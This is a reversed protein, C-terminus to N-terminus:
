SSLAVGGLGGSMLMVDGGSSGMPVHGTQCVKYAKPKFLLVVRDFRSDCSLAQRYATINQDTGFKGAPFEYPKRLSSKWAITKIDDM